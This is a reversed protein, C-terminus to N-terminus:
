FGHKKRESRLQSFTDEMKTITYTETQAMNAHSCLTRSEQSNKVLNESEAEVTGIMSKPCCLVLFKIVTNWDWDESFYKREMDEVHLGLDLVDDLDSFANVKTIWWNSRQSMKRGM